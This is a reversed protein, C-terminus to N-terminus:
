VKVTAAYAFLDDLDKESLSLLAAMTQISASQREWTVARKFAIQATYKEIPDSIGEIATQIDAETIQKLAFLAVLGQAPTCQTTLPSPINAALELAQEESIPQMGAYHSVDDDYDFAHVTKGNLFYKM